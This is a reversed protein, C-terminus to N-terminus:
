DGVKWPCTDNPKREVPLKQILNQDGYHIAQHTQFITTVLNDPDFVLPNGNQIDEITIPNIHHVYAPQAMIQYDPHALDCGSDRVIVHNRVSRWQPMKYLLQNLYRHSGFTSNGVAGNLKLYEFRDEYSDLEMMEHYSKVKSTM